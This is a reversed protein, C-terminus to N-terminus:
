RKLRDIITSLIMDSTNVVKANAELARQSIILKAFEETLDVNSAELYGSKLVTKNNLGAWGIIANGSAGNATFLSNGEKQLGGENTFNAMAMQALIKSVGNSYIGSIVGQDDININNLIGLQYGDQELLINTSPADMSTMGSFAGPLGANMSVNMEEAGLPRFRLSTGNDYLFSRLSGNDHFTVTGSGGSIPRLKGDDILVEWYWKNSGVTTDQTYMIELRHAQGASDYITIASHHKGTTGEQVKTFSPLKVISNATGANSTFDAELGKGITNRGNVIQINKYDYSDGLADRTFVVRGNELAAKMGPFENSNNIQNIFDDLTTGDHMAGFTFSMKRTHGNMQTAFVEIVDGVQYPTSHTSSLDNINTSGVAITSTFRDVLQSGATFIETQFGINFGVATGNTITISSLSDGPANDTMTIVGGATLTATVGYFVKNITNLFDQVTTGDGTPGYTFTGSVYSGDPNTGVINITDGIAITSNLLNRMDTSAIAPETNGTMTFVLGAGNLGTAAGSSNAFSIAGGNLDVFQVQNSAMGQELVVNAGPYQKNIFNAIDSLTENGTAFNFQMTVGRYTIDITDGAVYNMNPASGNLQNIRNNPMVTLNTTSGRSETNGVFNGDKPTTFFISFNGEGMSNAELRLRGAQDLSLTAGDIANSSRYILNVKDIFDQMTTGDRGYVFTYPKHEPDLIKKGARDTGTIEIVDGLMINNGDILALDTYAKVPKGNSLLQDKGLWEETKSANKDLNCYIEVNETAKAPEKRGFPLIIKNLATTSPLKGDPGALRGMVFHSGGQSLLSGDDMIQFAGARTYYQTNGDSVIFFGRGNIAVDSIIGTADVSGQKFNNDISSIISGRGIQVPNSGGFNGATGRATSITDSIADAFTIRSAKYGTTNVNAINNSIVDLSAQQNKVGTM